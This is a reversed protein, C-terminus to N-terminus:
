FTGCITFVHCFTGCSYCIHGFHAWDLSYTILHAVVTFVYGYHQVDLSYTVLHAMDTFVQVFHAVDTLYIDLIHLVQLIHSWNDLM